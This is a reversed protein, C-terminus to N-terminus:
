VSVPQSMIDLLQGAYKVIKTRAIELQRPSLPCAYRGNARLIQKAFSSMINADAGNYGVGNHLETSESQQEDATQEEYIRVVARVVWLDSEQLNSKIMNIAAKRPSNLIQDKSFM